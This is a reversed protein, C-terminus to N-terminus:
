YKTNVLYKYLDADICGLVLGFYFHSIDIIHTSRISLGTYMDSAQLRRSFWPNPNVCDCWDMPNGCSATSGYACSYTTSDTMYVCNSAFGAAAAM